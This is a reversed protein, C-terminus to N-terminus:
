FGMESSLAAWGPGGFLDDQSYGLTADTSATFTLGYTIPDDDGSQFSQEAYDTVKMRPYFRAVYIEGDATEDVALALVRYYLTSPRAPKRISVEGSIPDPDVNRMDKGLYLGITLAKTELATVQLTGIDSNIDTRVPETAGFATVNSSDVDRGFQHGDDGAWGLDEYGPPLPALLRDSPDTLKTIAPSSIPAVFVSGNLAKRILQNKRVALADYTVGM